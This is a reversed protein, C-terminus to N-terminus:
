ERLCALILLAMKMEDESVGKQAALWTSIVSKYRRLRDPCPRDLLFFFAFVFPGWLSRAFFGTKRCPFNPLSFPKLDNLM